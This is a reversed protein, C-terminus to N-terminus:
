ESSNKKQSFIRYLQPNRNLPKKGKSKKKLKGELLKQEIVKKLKNEMSKIFSRPTKIMKM